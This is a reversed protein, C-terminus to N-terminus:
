LAEPCVRAAMSRLLERAGEVVPRWEGHETQRIATISPYWPVPPGSQGWRWDAQKALLLITPLGIAGALHAVATDVTVLVDLGLLAVGTGVWGQAELAPGLPHLIAEAGVRAVDAAGAGCQFSYGTIWPEACLRLLQELPISRDHNRLHAPNGTWVFGVKLGPLHPRPLTAPFKAAHDRVRQAIYGPDPAIHDPTAGFIRPLSGLHVGIDVTSPPPVNHPWVACCGAFNWFLSVDHTAFIVARPKRERICALYRSFMIHDGVGQEDRVLLTKGSLDEGQWLPVDFAPPQGQGPLCLRTEYGALGRLWDGQDLDLMALDWATRPDDPAHTAAYRLVHNALRYEGIHALFVGWNGNHLTSYPDLEVAQELLEFAEDREGQRWRVIGLNGVPDAWEPALAVARRLMAEAAALQGAQWRQAGLDNLRQAQLRRITVSEPEDAGSEAASM